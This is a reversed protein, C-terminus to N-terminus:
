HQRQERVIRVGETTEDKDIAGTYSNDEHGARHAPGPRGSERDEGDAPGSGSPRLQDAPLPASNPGAQPARGRPAEHAGGRPAEHAGRGSGPHVLV